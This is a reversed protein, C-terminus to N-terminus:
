AAACAAALPPAYTPQRVRGPRQWRWAALVPVPWIMVGDRTLLAIHRASSAIGANRDRHGPPETLVIDGELLAFGFRRHGEYTPAAEIPALRHWGAAELERGMVAEAGGREALLQRGDAEGRYAGRWHRAPDRGTLALAWDACFLMCDHRGWEFHRAASESLFLSLSPPSSPIRAVHDQAM